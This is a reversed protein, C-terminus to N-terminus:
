TGIKPMMCRRQANGRMDPFNVDIDNNWEMGVITTPACRDGCARVARPVIVEEYNRKWM